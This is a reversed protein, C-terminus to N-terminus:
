GGGLLKQGPGVANHAERSAHLATGKLNVSDAARAGEVLGVPNKIDKVLGIAEVKGGDEMIKQTVQQVL